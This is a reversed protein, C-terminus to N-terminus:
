GVAGEAGDGPFEASGGAYVDVPLEEGAGGFEDFGAEDFGGEADFGFVFVVGGELGFVDAVAGGRGGAPPVAEADPDPLGVCGAAVFGVGGVPNLGTGRVVVAM